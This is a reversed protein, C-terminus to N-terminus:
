VKWTQAGALTVPVGITVNQNASSMNIGGNSILSGDLILTGAGSINVLGNLNNDFILGGLTVNAGLGLAAENNASITNDFVGVLSNTPIENPVWDTATNLTATDAKTITTQANGEFVMAFFSLFLAIPRAALILSIWKLTQKEVKM